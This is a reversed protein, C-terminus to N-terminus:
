RNQSKDEYSELLACLKEHLDRNKSNRRFRTIKSCYSRFGSTSGSLHHMKQFEAESLMGLDVLRDLIRVTDKPNPGRDTV